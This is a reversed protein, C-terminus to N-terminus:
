QLIYKARCNAAFRTFPFRGEFQGNDDPDSVDVLPTGREVKFGFVIVAHKLGLMAPTSVELVLPRERTEIERKVDDFSLGITRENPLNEHALIPQLSEVRQNCLDQTCGATCAQLFQEQALDCQTKGAAGQLLTKVALTVAAWCWNTKVQSVRMFRQLFIAPSEEERANLAQFRLLGRLNGTIPPM